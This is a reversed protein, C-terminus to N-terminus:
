LTVYCFSGKHRKIFNAARVALEQWTSIQNGNKCNQRKQFITYISDHLIYGKHTHSRENLTIHEKLNMSNYTFEVTTEKKKKNKVYSHGVCNILLTEIEM